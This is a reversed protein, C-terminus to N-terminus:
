KAVIVLDEITLNTANNELGHMLPVFLLEHGATLEIEATFPVPTGDRPLQITTIEAARQTDKKRLSLPVTKAGGDWPKSNATGVIKYVGTKPAIFALVPIKPYNNGEGGWPGLTGFNVKGDEVRASPHGGQSHDPAIWGGNGWVLPSYNAAMIPDTPFLRDLRWVPQGNASIPNGAASGKQTGEWAAPLKYGQNAPSASKEGLSISFDKLKCDGGAFMGDIQPLLTLEEGAALPM